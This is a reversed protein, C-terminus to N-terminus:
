QNIRNELGTIWSDDGVVSRDRDYRDHGFNDLTHYVTLQRGVHGVVM